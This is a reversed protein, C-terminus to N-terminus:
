QDKEIFNSPDFDEIPPTDLPISRHLPPMSEETTDIKLAAERLYGMEDSIQPMMRIAHEKLRMKCALDHRIANHLQFKGIVYQRGIESNRAIEKPLLKPRPRPRSDAARLLINHLRDGKGGGPAAESFYRANEGSIKSIRRITGCFIM